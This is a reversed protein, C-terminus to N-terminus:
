EEREEVLEELAADLTAEAAARHVDTVEYDVHGNDIRYKAVAADCVRLMFRITKELQLAEIASDLAAIKEAYGVVRADIQSGHALPLIREVMMRAKADDLKFGDRIISDAVDIMVTFRM